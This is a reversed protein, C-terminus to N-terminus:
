APVFVVGIENKTQSFKSNQAITPMKKEMGLRCGTRPSSKKM